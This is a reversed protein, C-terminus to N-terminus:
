ALHKLTEFVKKWPNFVSVYSFSCCAQLSTSTGIFLLYHYLSTAPKLFAFHTVDKDFSSCPFFFTHIWFSIPVSHNCYNMRDGWFIIAKSAVQWCSIGKSFIGYWLLATIRRHTPTNHGTMTLPLYCDILTHASTELHLNKRRSLTLLMLHFNDCLKM